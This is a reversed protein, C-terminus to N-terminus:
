MKLNQLTAQVYPMYVQTGVGNQQLIAKQKDTLEAEGLSNMMVNSLDIGLNYFFVNSSVVADMPMDLMAEHYLDGQYEEIIYKKRRKLTIPRYLVAMAKHLNPIDHLYTDLDIYEGFTMEELNNIFGFETDGMKFTLVLEPKQSLVDNIQKVISEYERLPLSTAVKYNINCFIELMKITVFHASSEDGRNAEVIKDFKKYQRLTIDALSTPIQIKVRM